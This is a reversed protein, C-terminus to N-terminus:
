VVSALPEASKQRARSWLKIEARTLQCGCVGCAWVVASVKAAKVASQPHWKKSMEASCQPCIMILRGNKIKVKTSVKVGSDFRKGRIAHALRVLLM